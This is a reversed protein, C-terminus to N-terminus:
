DSPELQVDSTEVIATITGNGNVSTTPQNFKVCCPLGRLVPQGDASKRNFLSGGLHLRAISGGGDNASTLSSSRNVIGHFSNSKRRILNGTVQIVTTQTQQRQGPSEIVIMTSSAARVLQGASRKIITTNTQCRRTTSMISSRTSTMTRRTEARLYCNRLTRQVDTNMFCYLIAVFIGQTKLINKIIFINYLPWLDTGSIVPSHCQHDHLLGRLHRKLILASYCTRQVLCRFCCYLPKSQEALLFPRHITSSKCKLHNEPLYHPLM